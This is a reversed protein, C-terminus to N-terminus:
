DTDFEDAKIGAILARWAPHSVALVPGETRAADRILVVDGSFAVEVCTGAEGCRSSKKWVVPNSTATM